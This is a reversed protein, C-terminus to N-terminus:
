IIKLPQQALARQGFRVLTQQPHVIQLLFIEAKDAVRQSIRFFGHLLPVFRRQALEGGRQSCFLAGERLPSKSKLYNLLFYAANQYSTQNKVRWIIYAIQLLIQRVFSLSKPLIAFHYQFAKFNIFCRRIIYAGVRIIHELNSNRNYLNNWSMGAM